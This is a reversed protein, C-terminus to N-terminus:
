KDREARDTADARAVRRLVQGCRRAYARQFWRLLPGAARTWWTRPRSFARVTLVVAADPGAGDRSVLFAEEGSVPHGPLTGYAWGALREGEATWVVRCPGYVRLPGVGLGVTVEAGPTARGARTAGKAVRVGMARHMRWEMLAAAAARFVADGSGLVTSVRLTRYGPPATDEWTAGTEAYTLGTLDPARRVAPRGPTGPSM